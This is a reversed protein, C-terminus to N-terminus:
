RPRTDPPLDGAAPDPPGDEIGSELQREERAILVAITGLMFSFFVIWFFVYTFVSMGEGDCGEVAGVAGACAPARQQVYVVPVDIAPALLYVPLRRV